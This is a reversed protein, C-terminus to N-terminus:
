AIGFQHEETPSGDAQNEIVQIAIPFAMDGVRMQRFRRLLVIRGPEVWPAMSTRSSPNMVRTVMRLCQRRLRNPKFDQIAQAMYRLAAFADQGVVKTAPTHLCDKALRTISASPRRGAAVPRPKIRQM